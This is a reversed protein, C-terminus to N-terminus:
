SKPKAGKIHGVFHSPEALPPEESHNFPSCRSSRRPSESNVLLKAGGSFSQKKISFLSKQLFDVNNLTDKQQLKALVPRVRFLRV